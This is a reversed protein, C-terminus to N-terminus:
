EQPTLQLPLLKLKEQYIIEYVVGQLATRINEKILTKNDATPHVRNSLFIFILDNEPDAWACTGTFGTHGFSSLPTLDHTPSIKKNDPEPKDFALGKRNNDYQQETFLQVVPYSIFREDGYRGNNLYMYMLKALDNANSFLGAHGAVGGLMAAAQDHVYGHLLQKRFYQDDETPVIEALPFKELPKYTMRDMGMPHYFQEDLYVDFPQQTLSDIIKKIFFYGLDSYKYKGRNRIEDELITNWMEMDYDEALYLNEAVQISFYNNPEYCYNSDCFGDETLTYKYFPIWSRLGAQHTLIEKLSLNEKDTGRVEGLYSGLTQDTDLLGLDYQRMIAPASGAIKTISAIDYLDRTQVKRKQKYTHYGFAKNYIVKGSKAVLIQCGPTAKMEIAAKAISDLKSFPYSSLGVSEPLGYQLRKLAETQVGQFRKFKQDIEIPLIGKFPLAGFISQAVTEHFTAEDEHAQIIVGSGKAKIKQLLYPTGFNVFIVNPYDLSQNIFDYFANKINFTKVHYRNSRHLSLIFLEDPNEAIKSLLLDFNEKGAGKDVGTKNIEKYHNLNELFAHDQATENLTIANINLGRLDRLPLLDNPDQLLVNAAAALTTKRALYAPQNLDETLQSTVIPEHNELGLQQKALLIKLVAQDLTAASIQKKELATKIETVAQGVDEPFLLVDNGALFAKLDVEGPQFFKSVGKMNLADTFVLGDYGLEKKLLNAIVKPSLSSALQPTSDLTPIHLHAAMVGGVGANFLQRFPYLEIDNIRTRNHTIVPLDLHSDKDTDGHGPFHKAVAMVGNNQLGKTYAIGHTAVRHKDDSFARTNIVPNKPNNNVDVVPAFNVHIGLRRCQHAIDAGMQEILEADQISGLTMQYPYKITSDLRMALGWEGDIAIMLPIKSDAQYINTLQAQKHPTGKFFILGGIHHEKILKQISKQHQEGKDSYAAVMFLQGIKEEITMASLTEEAWKSLKQSELSSSDEPFTQASAEFSCVFCLLCIAALFDPYKKQTSM